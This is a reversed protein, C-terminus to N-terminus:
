LTNWRDMASRGLDQGLAYDKALRGVDQSM